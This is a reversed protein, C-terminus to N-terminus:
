DWGKQESADSRAWCITYGDDEALIFVIFIQDAVQYSTGGAVAKSLNDKGPFNLEAIESATDTSAIQSM